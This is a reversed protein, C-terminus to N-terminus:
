NGGPSCTIAGGSPTRHSSIAVESACRKSLYSEVSPGLIRGHLQHNM